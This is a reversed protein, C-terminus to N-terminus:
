ASLDTGWVTFAPEPTMGVSRYLRLADTVNDADVDLSAAALGRGDFARLTHALLAQGLRQSRWEPRVGIAEVYGEQQGLRERTKAIVFGTIDGDARTVTWLSPDYSSAPADRVDWWFSQEDPQEQGWHEAFSARYATWLAGDDAGPVYAHLGAGDVTPVAAPLDTVMRLFHRVPRLGAASLAHPATADGAWATTSYRVVDQGLRAAVQRGREVAWQALASGIGHGRATPHVRAFAKVDAPPAAWVQAFGLVAGGPSEALLSDQSLVCGPMALRQVTEEPTTPRGLCTRTAADLMATLADVDADTAARWTPDNPEDAM